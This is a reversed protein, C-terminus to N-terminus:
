NNNLNGDRDAVRFMSKDPFMEAGKELYKTLPQWEKTDEFTGFPLTGKGIYKLDRPKFLLKM